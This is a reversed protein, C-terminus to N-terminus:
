LKLLRRDRTAWAAGCVGLAYLTLVIMATADSAYMTAMSMNIVGTALNALLFLALGNRNIAELLPPATQPREQQLTPLRSTDQMKLKSTPSYMSRSLPSPFFYLDLLLYGLIFSTNYAAVWAIYPLNVMRRSVGGGVGILMCAGLLAWWIATYSFLVTATKDNERRATNFATLKEAENAGQSAANSDRRKTRKNSQQRRRFHSPSPPLLFTGTSLGLLHIALYGILSVIGEKNASILGTRPADLVYSSLGLSLACQHALAVLVGIMSIPAHVIIPHLLVQLVPIFGLTLFFNWHVGYETVHEPYETGKILLVRVLGLLIVPLTKRLTRTTKPILPSTLYSPDKLLPIASVVGQSFVFSGVGMDMLSVGYTECKALIRPFVPFDVALISLITILMMHARYTSLAPLPALLLSTSTTSPPWIHVLPTRPSMDASSPLPTGSERLPVLLLLVTPFLLLVSLAGPANAFLTVSLLLPAVLLLFESAFNQSSHLCLRSRLCSYFAISSLAAASLLNIHTVTSGTMGSVFAEKSAKYSHVNNSM